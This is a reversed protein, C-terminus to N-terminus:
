KRFDLVSRENRRFIKKTHRVTEIREEALINAAQSSPIGERKAIAFVDEIAHYINEVSTMARGHNFFGHLEDAVSIVGGANIIFDPAYVIGADQLAQGHRDEELQNNASGAVVKIGAKKMEEISSDNITAGLACPSYIDAEVSFLNDRDILICGAEEARKRPGEFLDSAYVTAGEELLKKAVRFGVNGVGELIIKKDKLSDDGFAEKAAAKIGLYTGHATYPSPDGAAGEKISTGVVFPTEQYIYDMDKTTTGVDEATIYRGNLGDVFRGFARMLAESKVVGDEKMLVTKGGGLPVGCAANKYTMGKALRLADELAEEESEYQWYRLGGLSPGLSTDHIVTIAKLGTEEDKFIAIQEFDESFIEKIKRMYIGEMQIIM